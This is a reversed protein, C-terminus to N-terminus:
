MYNGVSLSVTCCWSLICIHGCERRSKMHSDTWALSAPTVTIRYLALNWMLRFCVYRDEAITPTTSHHPSTSTPSPPAVKGTCIDCHQDFVHSGHQSTTNTLIDLVGGGGPVPKSSDTAKSHSHSKSETTTPKSDSSPKSYSKSDAGGPHTKTLTPTTPTTPTTPLKQVAESAAITQSITHTHTHTHKYTNSNHTNHPWNM